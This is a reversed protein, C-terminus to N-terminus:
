AEANLEIIHSEKWIEPFIPTTIFVRNLNEVVSKLLNQRKMDLHIGLDDINMISPGQINKCLLKYEAIKLAIMISRKQGESAFNKVNKGSLHIM